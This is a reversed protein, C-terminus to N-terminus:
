VLEEIFIYESEEPNTNSVVMEEYVSRMDDKSNLEVLRMQYTEIMTNILQQKM